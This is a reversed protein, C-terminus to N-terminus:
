SGGGKGECEILARAKVIPCNPDVCRYALIEKLIGVAEDRESEAFALAVALETTADDNVDYGAPMMDARILARQRITEAKLKDRESRVRELDAKLEKLEQKPIDIMESDPMM